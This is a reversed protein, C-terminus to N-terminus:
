KPAIRWVRQNSKDFAFDIAYISSLTEQLTWIKKGLFVANKYSRTFNHPDRSLISWVTWLEGSSYYKTPDYKATKSWMRITEVLIDEEEINFTTQEKLTYALADRFDSEFGLARAIWLGIRAFDSVRFRPIDNDQPQPTQLIKQLDLVIQGWFQDRHSSIKNIIATEPAFEALRHFSFIVLRDVIDERRFKPNHATLGVLAQRRITISDNDTYLKRKTLDSKAASLALKDPLWGAWTDVNDFVVLPDTSVAQDYDEATTITNLVKETGYLLIYIRRFLTSKGSGQQGFLALLPRGIADDRFFLFYLWAKILALAHEPPSGNLNNFCGEFMADISLPHTIDPAFPQENTRWPFVVNLQGNVINSISTPTIHLVDRNGTHLLILRQQPDYRDLQAVTGIKGHAKTSSILFNIVFRTEGETANLGYKTDLLTTLNGNTTNLPIPLGTDEAIYWEQGDNTAVFTGNQSLHDRVLYAIFQRKENVIGPMRRADMVRSRVTASDASGTAVREEARLVDKALDLDAHYKNDTWKNNPTAKALAFVEDRTLGAHFLALMLNWLTVSRDQQRSDYTTQVKRPLQSKTKAWLARPGTVPAPTWSEADPKITRNRNSRVKASLYKQLEASVVKVPKPEGQYKHNLTNAIRMKHGISWGSRDADPISYTLDRSIDELDDPEAPNQLIWFGQHRGPSTEVVINPANNQPVIANDLDAQITRSPLVNDKTAQKAKFLHSSFYVDYEEAASEARLVIKDLDQPWNYWEHSWETGNHRLALNFYGSPTTVVTELFAATDM